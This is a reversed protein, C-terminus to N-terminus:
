TDVKEKADPTNGLDNLKMRVREILKREASHGSDTLSRRYASRAEAINGQALLIDGRVEEYLSTFEGADGDLFTIAEGWKEESALLRALRLRAVLRVAKSEGEDIGWQLHTKAKEIDGQQFALRAVVLSALAAYGTDPFEKVLSEGQKIADEVANGNAADSNALVVLQEYRLSTKEAKQTVYVQWSSWGIVGGTGLLVGFIVAKSNEKWWKQLSELQERESQDTTRM